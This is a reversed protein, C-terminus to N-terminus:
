IAMGTDDVADMYEASTEVGGEGMGSFGSALMQRLEREEELRERRDKIESRKRQVERDEKLNRQSKIASLGSAKARAARLHTQSSQKMPSKMPSGILPQKAFVAITPKASSYPPEATTNVSLNDRTSATGFPRPAVKAAPTSPTMPLPRSSVPKITAQMRALSSATPQYLTSSRPLTPLKAVLESPPLPAPRATRILEAQSQKRMSLGSSISTSKPLGLANMSGSRPHVVSPPAFDPIKARPKIKSSTSMVTQASTSRNRDRQAKEMHSSGEAMNLDSSRKLVTDLDGSRRRASTVSRRLTDSPKVAKDKSLSQALSNTTQSRSMSMVNAAKPPPVRTIANPPLPKPGASLRRRPRSLGLREALSKNRGWSARRNKKRIESLPTQKPKTPGDGILNVLSKGADRLSGLYNPGPSLRSRKTRLHDQGNDGGIEPLGNPASPMSSSDHKRKVGPTVPIDSPASSGKQSSKSSKLSSNISQMRSFEREHAAAFRDIKLGNLSSTLGFGGEGIDKNVSVLKGIEAKKGKLLEEGLRMGEPMKANMEALLKDAVGSFQANSVGAEGSAGFVVPASTAAPFSGPLAPMPPMDHFAPLPPYVRSLSASSINPLAPMSKRNMPGSPHAHPSRIPALSRREKLLHQAPAKGFFPLDDDDPAAQVPEPSPSALLRVTSPRELLSIRSYRRPIGVTSAPSPPTPDTIEELTEPELGPVPRAQETLQSSASTSRSLLSRSASRKISSALERFSHKSRSSSPHGQAAGFEAMKEGNGASKWSSVSSSKTMGGHTAMAPSAFSAGSDSLVEWTDSAQSPPNLDETPIRREPTPQTPSSPAFDLISATPTSPPPYVDLPTDPDITSAFEELREVMDVNKGSAKLGYRKSLSVLQHRKLANLAASDFLIKHEEQLM